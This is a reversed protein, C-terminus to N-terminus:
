LKLLDDESTSTQGHEHESKEGHFHFKSPLVFEGKVEFSELSRLFFREVFTDHGKEQYATIHKAHRESQSPPSLPSPPAGMARVSANSM